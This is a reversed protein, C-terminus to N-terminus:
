VNDHVVLWIIGVVLCGFVRTIGSSGLCVKLSCMFTVFSFDLLGSLTIFTRVVFFHPLALVGITGVHLVM